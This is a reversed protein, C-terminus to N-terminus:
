KDGTISKLKDMVERTDVGLKEHIDSLKIDGKTKPVKGISFQKELGRVEDVIQKDTAGQQLMLIVAIGVQKITEAPTTIEVSINKFAAIMEDHNFRVRILENEGRLEAISVGFYNSLKELSAQTPESNGRLYRQVAPLTIGIDRAVARQGKQSVAEKLLEVVRPFTTSRGAPM